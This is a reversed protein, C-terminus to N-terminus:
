SAKRRAAASYRRWEWGGIHGPRTPDRPRIEVLGRRELVRLMVLYGRPTPEWDAPAANAYCEMMPSLKKM